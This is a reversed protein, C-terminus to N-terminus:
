LHETTHLTDSRVATALIARIVATRSLGAQEAAAMFGSDPAICPNPNVDIVFPRGDRDVRFDVRAYGTLGFIRACALATQELEALLSEDSPNRAFRRGSDQWESSQEDWKSAYDLFGTETESFVMEAMPLVTMGTEPHELLAVNFERGRIFREAICAGGMAALYPEMANLLVPGSEAHVLCGRDMGASADECRSKLLYEGPGPFLSSRLERDTVGDPVRIGNKAMVTRALSKDGFLLLATEDCGTFPIGAQRYLAPAMVALIGSEMVSEVLNFVVGPAADALMRLMSLRDPTFELEVAEHGLEGLIDCVMAAQVRTDASDPGASPAVSERIVAVPGPRSIM